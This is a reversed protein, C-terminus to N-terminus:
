TAHSGGVYWGLGRINKIVSHGLKRRLGHIIFEVVNSEVDGDRGYIQRELEARSLIAGPRRMLVCLLDVERRSLRLTSGEYTAEKTALDLQLNGAELRSMASGQGRRVLVRVRALLEALEFPKILYDDAGADLGEIRESVADRASIILIPLQPNSAADSRATRLVELGNVGPLGLDLLMLHCVEATLWGCADRGDRVWHVDYGADILAQQVALGIMRDDEVLLVQM